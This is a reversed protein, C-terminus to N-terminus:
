YKVEPAGCIEGNNYIPTDNKITKTEKLNCGILVFLILVCFLVTLIKKM